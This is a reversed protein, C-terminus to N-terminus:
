LFFQSPKLFLLPLIFFLYKTRKTCFINNLWMKGWLQFPWLWQKMASGKGGIQCKRTLGPPLVLFIKFSIYQIWCLIIFITDCICASLLLSCHIWPLNSSLPGHQAPALLDIRNIDECPLWALIWNPNTEKQKSM